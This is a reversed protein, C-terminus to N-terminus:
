TCSVYHMQTALYVGLGFAIIYTFYGIIQLAAHFAVLGPFSLLRISIAGFPFLVAFVLCALIAHAKIMRNQADISLSSFQNLGGNSSTTGSTPCASSVARKDNGSGGTAWPPRGSDDGSSGFPFPFGSGSTTPSAGGNTSSGGSQAAADCNVTTTGTSGTSSSSSTFPNTNDTNKAKSLDLTMGGYTSQHQTITASTSDSNLASGSHAAYIWSTSSSTVDM